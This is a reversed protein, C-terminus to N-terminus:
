WRRLAQREVCWERESPDVADAVGGGPDYGDIRAGCGVCETSKDHATADIGEEDAGLVARGSHVNGRRYRFRQQGGRCLLKEPADAGRARHLRDRWAAQRWQRIPMRTADGRGPARHYLLPIIVAAVALHMLVSCRATAVSVGTGSLPMSLSAALGLLAM